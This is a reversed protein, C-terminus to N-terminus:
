RPREASALVAEDEDREIVGVAHVQEPTSDDRGDSDVYEIVGIVPPQELVPVDQPEGPVFVKSPKKEDDRRRRM